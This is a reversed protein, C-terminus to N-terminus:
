QQIQKNQLEESKAQQVLEGERISVGAYQLIKIVLDNEYYLPLEFDQYDVASQDFLPTGNTFTVYTWKPDKPYRVYNLSVNSVITNPYVFIKTKEQIVYNPYTVTPTTLNSSLLRMLDAHNIKEVEKSNYRLSNYHYVDNPIVFHDTNYTLNKVEVFTDLAEGHRRVFDAYNIGSMRANQKVMAENYLRMIDEYIDLQAQKSFLNFDMPSIYGNNDKSIIALVTNRVSNIM